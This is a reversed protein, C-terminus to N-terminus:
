RDRFASFPRARARVFPLAPPATGASHSGARASRERDHHDCSSGNSLQTQHGVANYAYAVAFGSPYAISSVRSHADYGTTTTYTSGSITLQVQSPRGVSDYTHARSYGTNTAASALKGVGHAATDYTWSATLDPEARQTTRGLLDYTVTTVLLQDLVNWTYTWSGM